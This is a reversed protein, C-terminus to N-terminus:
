EITPNISLHIIVPSSQSGKIWTPEVPRRTLTGTVVVLPLIAGYCDYPDFDDADSVYSPLQSRDLRVVMQSIIRDRSRQWDKIMKYLELIQQGATSSTSQLIGEEIKSM